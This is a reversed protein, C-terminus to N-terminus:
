QKWIKNIFDNYREGYAKWTLVEAAKGAYLIGNMNKQQELASKIATLVSDLAYDNVITIYEPHEVIAKLDEAGSDKSGVLPLNCAIAQAQVMALGEERSPLVFVKAKNYYHILEKQDVSPVHTFQKDKPFEMDVIGGVHLFSLGSQRIADAIIDCGKRFSWGGVMIVDFKKYLSFVRLNVGGWFHSKLVKFLPRWIGEM